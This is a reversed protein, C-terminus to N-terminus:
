ASAAERKVKAAEVRRKLRRAEPALKADPTMVDLQAKHAAKLVDAHSSEPTVGVAAPEVPTDGRQRLADAVAPTLNGHLLWRM